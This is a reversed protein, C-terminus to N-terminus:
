LMAVIDIRFASVCSETVGSHLDIVLSKPTKNTRLFFIARDWVVASEDLLPINKLELSELTEKLGLGYKM